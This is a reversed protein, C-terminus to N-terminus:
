PQRDTSNNDPRNRIGDTIAYTLATMGRILVSRDSSPARGGRISAFPVQIDSAVLM